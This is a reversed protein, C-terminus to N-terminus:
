EGGKALEIRLKRFDHDLNYMARNEDLMEQTQPSLYAPHQSLWHALAQQLLGVEAQELEVQAKKVAGICVMESNVSDLAVMMLIRM